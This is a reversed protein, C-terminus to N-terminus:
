RCSARNWKGRPLLAWFVERSACLKDALTVLISERCRPLAPNMPFMHKVIVDREVDTLVFDREANALARRAHTFGHLSHGDNPIHWDYLFYDHLLAGRIMGAMDVQVGLRQALRISVCAVLVSHQYCTITGHQIFRKEQQMGWSDLIDGGYRRLLVYPNENHDTL